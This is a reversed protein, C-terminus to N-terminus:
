IHSDSGSKIWSLKVSRRSRQTASRAGVGVMAAACSSHVWRSTRRCEGRLGGYQESVTCHARVGSVRARGGACANYRGTVISGRYAPLVATSPCLTLEHSMRGRARPGGRLQDGCYWRECNARGLRRWADRCSKHLRVMAARCVFLYGNWFPAHAGLAPM